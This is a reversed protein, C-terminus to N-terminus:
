KQIRGVNNKPNKKNIGNSNTEATTKAVFKANGKTIKKLNKLM